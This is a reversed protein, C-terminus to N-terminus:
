LYKPTLSQYITEISKTHSRLNFKEIVRNRNSKGMNKRLEEDECLKIIGFAMEEVDNYDVLLANGNDSVAEEIESIKTALVPLGISMAELLSRSFGERQSPLVFVDLASLIELIRESYDLFIADGNLDSDIVLQHLMENFFSDLPRGILLAKAVLDPRHAKAKALAKLFFDQGKLPVINGVAGFLIDNESVGIEKRVKQRYSRNIRFESTDVGNYVVVIKQKIHSGFRGFRKSQVGRSACVISEVLWALLGDYFFFDKITERVHWIVPIRLMQGVLGAYFCARSGNAHIIDVDSNKLLKALKLLAHIPNTLILRKLPPLPNVFVNIEKENLKREIEGSEPVVVVPEFLNKNLRLILQYFSIEGGGLFFSHNFIYAIRLRKLPNTTNLSGISESIM